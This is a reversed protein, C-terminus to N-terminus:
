GLRGVRGAHRLDLWLLFLGQGAIALGDGPRGRRAMAVGGAVYGVDLGANVLLVTRL